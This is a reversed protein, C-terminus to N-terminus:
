SAFGSGDALVIVEVTSFTKNDKARGGALVQDGTAVDALKVSKLKEVRHVDTTKISGEPSGNGKEIKIVDSAVKSVVRGLKSRASLVIIDSGGATVLIRRGPHVDAITGKITEEFLTLATTALTQSGHKKTAVTITTGSKATVKGIRQSLPGSLLGSPAKKNAVQKRLKTVQDKTRSQEVKYGVGLGILGGLIIGVVAVVAIAQTPGKRVWEDASTKISM